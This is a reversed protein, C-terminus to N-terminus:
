NKVGSFLPYWWTSLQYIITLSIYAIVVLLMCHCTVRNHVAVFSVQLLKLLVEFM